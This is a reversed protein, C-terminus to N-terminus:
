LQLHLKEFHWLDCLILKIAVNKTLFAACESHQVESLFFATAILHNQVLWAVQFFIAIKV